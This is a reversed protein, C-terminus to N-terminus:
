LREDTESESFAYKLDFFVHNPKGYRRLTKAGKVVFEDHAVALVIADYAGVQPEAIFSGNLNAPVHGSNIQPDFCRCSM